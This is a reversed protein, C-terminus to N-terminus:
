ASRTRRSAVAAQGEDYAQRLAKLIELRGAPKLLISSVGLARLRAGQDDTVYSSHVVARVGPRVHMAGFFTELGNMRPMGFDLLVVDVPHAQVARIADPGNEALLVTYGAEKLMAGYDKLISSDDDVVLVTASCSVRTPESEPQPDIAPFYLSFRTGRPGTELDLVGHHDDMVATVITLGLGSGSRHKGGKSSFFPDFIKDLHEKPIGPGQDEIELFAYRGPALFGLHCRKSQDLSVVGWRVAVPVLRDLDSEFANTLLNAVARSLQAASGRIWAEGKPELSLRQGPFRTAVDRVAEALYVPQLEVRGRRSLALLHTNLDLLQGVQKRMGTCITRIDSLSEAEELEEIRALIPSILNQIDHAVQGATQAALELRRQRDIVETKARLNREQEALREALRDNQRALEAQAARLEATREELLQSVNDAHIVLQQRHTFYYALTVTLQLVGGTWYIWPASQLMVLLGVQVVVEGLLLAVVYAQARPLSMKVPAQGRLERPLHVWGFLVGVITVAAYHAYGLWIAAPVGLSVTTYYLACMIAQCASSGALLASAYGRHKLYQRGHVGAILGFALPYAATTAIDPRIGYYVAFGIGPLAVAAAAAARASYGFLLLVSGAYAGCWVLRLKEYVLPPLYNLIRLFDVSALFWLSASFLAFKWRRPPDVVAQVLLFAGLVVTATFSGWIAFGAVQGLIGDM